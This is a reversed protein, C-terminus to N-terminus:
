ILILIEVEISFFTVFVFYFIFVRVLCTRYSILKNKAFAIQFGSKIKQFPPSVAPYFILFYIFLFPHLIPCGKM